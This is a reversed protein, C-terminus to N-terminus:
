FTEYYDFPIMANKSTLSIDFKFLGEMAFLTFSYMQPLCIAVMQFMRNTGYLINLFYIWQPSVLSMQKNLIKKFLLKLLAIQFHYQLFNSKICSKSQVTVCKVASKPSEVNSNKPNEGCGDMVKCCVLQVVHLWWDWQLVSINSKLVISISYEM